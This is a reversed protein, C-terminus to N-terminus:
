NEEKVPPRALFSALAALLSFVMMLIIVGTYSGFNDFWVGFPLPGFASGIVMMTMSAGQISGLFKRGYYAPWIVNISMREFGQVIGRLIGYFVATGPGVILAIWLMSLVQGLFTLAFIFRPPYRDLLFGALFNFPLAFLAQLGLITAALLPDIGRQDMISVHHFILGTNVMAPVFVCFLLLWFTLGKRAMELTISREENNASIEKGRGHHPEGDTLQRIDEPRNRVLVIALPVMVFLLLVAWSQWGLRWDYNHIIWSNLPPLIASSAVGGLVAFSLARGRKKEFWQPILTTSVLTMSGQGFLRVLFFGFFLMLPHIVISMWICALSLIGAIVPMMKRHGFRDILRGIYFLLFGALVTGGSYLASVFSRSWGFEAIYSDIFVSVSYTQGPGSFFIGLGGMFVMVWGYFFPPRWKRTRKM